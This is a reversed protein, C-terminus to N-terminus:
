SARYIASYLYLYLIIHYLLITPACPAWVAAGFRQRKFTVYGYFLHPTGRHPLQPFSCKYAFRRRAAATIGRKCSRAFMWCICEFYEHVVHARIAQHKSSRTFPTNTLPPTMETNTTFHCWHDPSILGTQRSYTVSPTQVRYSSFHPRYRNQVDLLLFRCKPM